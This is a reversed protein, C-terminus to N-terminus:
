ANTCKRPNKKKKVEFANGFRLSDTETLPITSSFPLLFRILFPRLRSVAHYLPVSLVSLLNFNYASLNSFVCLQVFFSHAQFPLPSKTKAFRYSNSM